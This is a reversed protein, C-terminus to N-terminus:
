PNAAYMTPPNMPRPTSMTAIIKSLRFGLRTSGSEAHDLLGILLSLANVGFAAMMSWGFRNVLSDTGRRRRVM